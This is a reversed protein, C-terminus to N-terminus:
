IRCRFRKLTQLAALLEEPGRELYVLSSGGVRRNSARLSSVTWIDRRVRYDRGAAFRTAMERCPLDSLPLEDDAM